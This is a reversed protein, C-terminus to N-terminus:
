YGAILTLLIIGLSHVDAKEPDYIKIPSDSELVEPAIYTQTGRTGSETSLNTMFGFDIITVNIEYDLLLNDLKLDM